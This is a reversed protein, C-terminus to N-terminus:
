QMSFVPGIVQIADLSFYSNIVVALRMRILCALKTSRDSILAHIGPLERCDYRFSALLIDKSCSDSPREASSAELM